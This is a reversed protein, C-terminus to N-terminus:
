LIKKLTEIGLILFLTRLATLRSTSLWGRGIALAVGLRKYPSALRRRGFILFKLVATHLLFFFPFFSSLFSFLTLLPNAWGVLCGMDEGTAQGVQPEGLEGDLAVAVGEAGGTCLASEGRM